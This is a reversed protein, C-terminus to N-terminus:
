KGKIENYMLLQNKIVVEEGAKIGETIYTFDNHRAFPTIKRIGFTEDGVVVYYGNNDFIVASSPVAVLELNSDNFLKVVVPMEPKLKLAPNPLTIRVKLAKDESDFVQSLFDIKGKFVEAPYAVSTIEVCQGERVFQLDAMSFLPGGSEPFSTGPNCYKGIVYGSMPAKVSFVGNDQNEGYLVFDSQLKGVTSRAEVLEKDTAMGSEHLSEVGKLNQRAVALESQLSSLEVSRIDVMRKGKEAYDGLSFYSKVVVGSVLPSYSITRDSDVVVKGALTFEKQWRKLEAKATLVEQLFVDSVTERTPLSSRSNEGCSALLPLLLYIIRKMM